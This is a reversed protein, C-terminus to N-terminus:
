SCAIRKRRTGDNIAGERATFVRECASALWYAASCMTGGTFAVIGFPKHYNRGKFIKQALDSCGSIEGGPSNFDLVIGKVSEDALCEDFAAGISDYSDKGMWYALEDGRYCLPGDIKIIALGDDRREVNNVLNLEGSEKKATFRGEENETWKLSNSALVEADEQRMALRLNFLSNMTMM